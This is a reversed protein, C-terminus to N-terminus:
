PSRSLRSACSRVHVDVKLEGATSKAPKAFIIVKSLLREMRLFVTFRVIPNM